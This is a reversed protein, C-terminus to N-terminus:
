ANNKITSEEAVLKKSHRKEKVIASKYQIYTDQIYM